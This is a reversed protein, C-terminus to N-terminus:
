VQVGLAAGGNVKFSINNDPLRTINTIEVNSNQNNWSKFNTTSEDTISTINGSGPYLMNTMNSYNWSRLGAQGSESGNYVGDASMFLVNNKSSVCNVCNGGSTFLGWGTAGESEDIHLARIGSNVGGWNRDNIISYHLHANWGFFNMNELLFYEGENNTNVRFILATDQNPISTIDMLMTSDIIYPSAWSLFIRSYANYLPPTKEDNNYAGADMVDLNGLTKSVGNQDYDTDYYDLLGLVHGFEHAHVGVGSMKNSSNKESACSYERIRVGDLIIPPDLRSRHAWVADTGGGNHQGKGAYVVHIGDVILNADNDFVSFDIVSDAAYCADIIMQRANADNMTSTAAGYFARTNALTFPGIVSCQLDFKGFSNAAFYDRISGTSQNASYGIQNFLNEFDQRSYTFAVDSYQVLIVLLKRIGITIGEVGQSKRNDLMETMQLMLDIQSQSYRLKKQITSLFNIDSISRENQSKAIIGSPIMDGVQDKIAYELYGQKNYMLTYNDESEVWSIREDGFLYASVETGDPQSLQVLGKYAPVAMSIQSILLIAIFLLQTFAKKM